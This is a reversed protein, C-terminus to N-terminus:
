SQGRYFHRKLFDSARYSVGSPREPDTIDSEALVEEDATLKRMPVALLRRGSQATLAEIARRLSGHEEAAAAVESGSLGLHEGVLANRQETIKSSVEEQNPGAEILIDCETDYGMSRNNLNASGLKLIRDDAIMIKAHVYIATGADNVPYLLRFRDHMDAAQVLNMLRIRASDMTKAELWGNAGQPNVVIVEPGDAEELRKAIAEAVRRSAFYQSEIYLRREASKIIALTATEIEVTEKRGEYEPLTRAIGIDINRFDVELDDPWADTCREVPELTEDTAAQWRSRALEALTAAADGSFCTTADHWPDQAFGMPSRRRKDKELHDPTDWRGVTMDIGGCFAVQDDIVLLKMHHASALPHASDLKLHVRKSFMWGFMYIPTEGRVVSSILGMDWKLIRINLQDNRKALWNLFSGLKDPPGDEHKDPVLDIRTDFDWGILLISERAKLMAQRALRFFDAADVIVSLRDARSIRWCTEGEALITRM